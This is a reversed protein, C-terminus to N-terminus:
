NCCDTKQHIGVLVLHVTTRHWSRIESTLNDPPSYTLQEFGEKFGACGLLEADPCMRGM